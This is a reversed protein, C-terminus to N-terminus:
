SNDSEHAFFPDRPIITTRDMAIRVFSNEKLEANLHDPMKLNVTFQASNEKKCAAAFSDEVSQDNM